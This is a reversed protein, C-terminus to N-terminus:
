INKKEPHSIRESLNSRNMPKLTKMSYQEDMAHYNAKQHIMKALEIVSDLQDGHDFLILIEELM